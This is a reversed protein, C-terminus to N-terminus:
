EQHQETEGMGFFHISDQPHVHLLLVPLIIYGLVDMPQRDILKTEFGGRFQSGTLIQAELRM